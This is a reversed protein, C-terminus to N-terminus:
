STVMKLRAAKGRMTRERIKESELKSAFGRIYTILRGVENSEVTETVSQLEVAYKELVDGLIVGHVPDRTWRDLCYVVLVDAEGSKIYEQVELLMPRELTLGSFTECAQYGISYGKSECHKLCAELQTQLSTGEREQNDTSVRCYIAAKM